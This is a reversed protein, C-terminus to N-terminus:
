CDSTFDMDAIFDICFGTGQQSPLQEHMRLEIELAPGPWVEESGLPWASLSLHAGKRWTPEAHHSKNIHAYVVLLLTDKYQVQNPQSLERLHGVSVM